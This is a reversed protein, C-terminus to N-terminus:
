SIPVRILSLMLYAIVYAGAIILALGIFQAGANNIAEKLSETIADM